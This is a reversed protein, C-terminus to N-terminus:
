ENEVEEIYTRKLDDIENSISDSFNIIAEAEEDYESKHVFFSYKEDIIKEIKAFIEAIQEKMHKQLTEQGAISAEYMSQLHKYEEAHEQIVFNLNQIFGDRSEIEAKQRKILDLAHTILREDEKECKENFPCDECASEEDCCHEMAKIIENDKMM